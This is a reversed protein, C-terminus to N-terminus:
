SFATSPKCLTEFTAPLFFRTLLQHSFFGFGFFLLFCQLKSIINIFLFFAAILLIERMYVVPFLKLSSTLFFDQTSVNKKKKLPFSSCFLLSFFSHALLFNLFPPFHRLLILLHSLFRLYSIFPWLFNFLSLLPPHIMSQPHLFNLSLTNAPLSPIQHTIPQKKQSLPWGLHPGESPM